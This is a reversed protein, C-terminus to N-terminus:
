AARNLQAEPPQRYKRKAADVEVESPQRYQQKAREIEQKTPQRYQALASTCFAVACVAIIVKSPM